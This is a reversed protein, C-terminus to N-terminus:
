LVDFHVTRYSLNSHGVLQYKSAIFGHLAHHQVRACARSIDAILSEAMEQVEGRYCPPDLQHRHVWYIQRLQCVVADTVRFRHNDVPLHRISCRSCAEGLVTVIFLHGSTQARSGCPYLVGSVNRSPYFDSPHYSRRYLFM